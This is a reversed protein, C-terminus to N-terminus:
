VRLWRPFRPCLQDYYQLDRMTAIEPIAVYPHWADETGRRALYEGFSPSRSIEIGNNRLCMQLDFVYYGWLQRLEYPGLLYRLRSQKPYRLECTHSVVNGPLRRRTDLDPAVVSNGNVEADVGFQQLCEVMRQPWEDDGVVRVPTMDPMQVFPYQEALQEREKTAEARLLDLKESQSTPTIPPEASAAVAFATTFLLVACLV